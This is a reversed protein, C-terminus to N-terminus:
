DEESASDLDTMVRGEYFTPAPPGGRRRRITQVPRRQTRESTRKFPLIEAPPEEAADFAYAPPPSDPTVPRTYRQEDTLTSRLEMRRQIREWRDRHHLYRLDRLYTLVFHLLLLAGWVPIALRAPNSDFREPLAAALQPYAVLLSLYLTAHLAMLLWNRLGRDRPKMQRELRQNYGDTRQSMRRDIRQSMM